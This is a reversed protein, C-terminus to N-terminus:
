VAGTGYMISVGMRPVQVVTTGRSGLSASYRSHVDQEKTHHQNNHQTVVFFYIRACLLMAALDNM